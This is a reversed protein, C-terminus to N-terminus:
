RVAQEKIVMQKTRRFCVWNGVYFKCIPNGFPTTHPGTYRTNPNTTSFKSTLKQFRTISEFEEEIQEDTCDPSWFINPVSEKGTYLRVRIVQSTLFNFTLGFVYFETPIYPCSMKENIKIVEELARM